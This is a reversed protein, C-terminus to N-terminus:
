VVNGRSGNRASAIAVRQAQGGSLQAPYKSAHAALGVLELLAMGRTLSKAKPRNLVKEQGLRVNEVATMHPFLEFNQFVMGIKSRLRPLDTLHDGVSTGAVSIKGNDLSELGNVCKLLTSKGSGSPGCVVVNKGKRCHALMTEISSKARVNTSM